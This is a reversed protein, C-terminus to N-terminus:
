AIISQIWKQLERGGISDDKALLPRGIRAESSRLFSALYKLAGSRTSFIGCRRGALNIHTFLNEIYYFSFTKKKQCGLFFIHAPLLDTASVNVADIASVKYDGSIKKIGAAIAAGLNRMSDSSDTIILIKKKM